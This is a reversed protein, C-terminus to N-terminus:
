RGRDIEAFRGVAPCTSKLPEKGKGEKSDSFEVIGPFLLNVVVM